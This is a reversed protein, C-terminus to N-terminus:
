LFTGCRYDDPFYLDIVSLNWRVGTLIALIMFEPSLLDQPPLPSLPVSRWQQDSQLSTFGCQCDNQHNREFNSMTSGSSVAIGSRPMYGSSAEVYLLSVHEM